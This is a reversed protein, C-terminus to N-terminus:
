PTGRIKAESDLLFNPGSSITDGVNLGSLVEYFSETKQGLTVKKPTLKNGDVFYVIDGTGTHLVSSEPIGIRDNLSVEILGSFTTESILGAPSKKISGVVRVTRSTPDVISDISTIAGSIEGESLVTSEGTFPLGSKIYKMDSEYVQFAVSKPSILRGSVPIKLTLTMKEVALKQTGLLELQHATSQVSSRADGTPAEVEDGSQDNVFILKMHCIPCEGPKDSHIQPHMACTWHGKEQAHDASASKTAETKDPSKLCAGAILAFLISTVGVWVRQNRSM